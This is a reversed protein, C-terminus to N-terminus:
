GCTRVSNLDEEGGLTHNHTSLHAPKGQEVLKQHPNLSDMGVVPSREQTLSLTNGTRIICARAPSVSEVNVVQILFLQLLHPTAAQPLSNSVVRM